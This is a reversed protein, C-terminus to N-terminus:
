TSVCVLYLWQITTCQFHCSCLLCSSFGGSSLSWTFLQGGLGSTLACWGGATNLFWVSVPWSGDSETLDSTVLLAGLKEDPFQWELTEYTFNSLVELGIESELARGDQGELFGAFGVQDTEKLVGVQAGDVGFTDGNHWLVDLQCATDSTFTSLRHTERCRLCVARKLAVFWRRFFESGITKMNIIYNKM